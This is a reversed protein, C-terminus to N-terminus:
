VSLAVDQKNHDWTLSFSFVPAQETTILVLVSLKLTVSSPLYSSEVIGQVQSLYAKKEM